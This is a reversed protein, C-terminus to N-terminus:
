IVPATIKSVVQQQRHEPNAGDNYTSVFTGSPTRPGCAVAALGRQSAEM